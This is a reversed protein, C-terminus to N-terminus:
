PRCMHRHEHSSNLLRGTLIFVTTASEKSVRHGSELLVDEAPHDFSVSFHPPLPLKM